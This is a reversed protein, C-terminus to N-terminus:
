TGKEEEGIEQWWEKGSIQTIVSSDFATVLCVYSMFIFPTM